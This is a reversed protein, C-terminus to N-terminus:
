VLRWVAGAKPTDDGDDDRNVRAIWEDERALAEQEIEEMLHLEALMDHVLAQSGELMRNLSSKGTGADEPPEGMGRFQRRWGDLRRIMGSCDDKWATDLEGVFLSQGGQLMCTGDKRAEEVECVQDMWREFRRVMRAYKGGPESLAWIGNVVADLAQIREELGGGSGWSRLALVNERELGQRERGAVEAAADGFRAFREGLKQRASDRWQADVAAADRHLLHLQLLEAQLRSTEASAAVNAPLKSPSPPALYTSTLPKPDRTKAPSYHQQLTSFAPRLKPPLQQQQQQARTSAHATASSTPTPRTARDVSVNRNHATRTRTSTSTAGQSPPRLVTSPNLTTPTTTSKARTHTPARRTQTPPQGSGSSTPRAASAGRTSTASPPYRSSIDRKASEATQRTSATRGLAGSLARSSRVGTTTSTSASSTTASSM